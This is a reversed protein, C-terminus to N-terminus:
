RWLQTEAKVKERSFWILLFVPYIMGMTAGWIPYVLVQTRLHAPYSMIQGIPWALNLLIALVAYTVHMVPGAKSQRWLLLGAPLLLVGGLIGSLLQMSAFMLGWLDSTGFGLFLSSLSGSGTFLILIMQLIYGISILVREAGYAVSIAGVAVPWLVRGYVAGNMEANQSM